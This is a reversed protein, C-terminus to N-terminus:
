VDGQGGCSEGGGGVGGHAGKWGAATVTGDLLVPFDFIDLGRGEVRLSLAPDGRLAVNLGVPALEAGDVAAAVAGGLPDADAAAASGALPQSGEGGEGWGVWRFAM